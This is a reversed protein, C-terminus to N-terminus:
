VLFYPTVGAARWYERLGLRTTLREFRPDARVAAMPPEFLFYTIKGTHPRLMPGPFNRRFAAPEIGPAMIMELYEFAADLRGTTSAFQAAESAKAVVRHAITDFLRLTDDIQGEARSQLAAAQADWLQYDIPDLGVPSQQSDAIIASAQAAKGSFLMFAILLTWIAYHRPWRESMRRLMAEAEDLRGVSWLRRVHSTAGPSINAGEVLPAGIELAEGVQGTEFLFAARTARALRHRPFRKLAQATRRDYDPYSSYWLGKGLVSVVAGDANAPDIELARAAAAMARDLIADANAQRNINGQRRYAIALMGWAEAREPFRETAERMLGVAAATQEPTSYNLAADASDILATLDAPLKPRRLFYVGSAAAIVIATGGLLTRRGPGSHLANAATPLAVGDAVLRYGIRTVTEVEFAGRGLGGALKRLRSIVRNIADEGVVRGEWCSHALDDKSVVAGGARHMAVLVQMVRPEIVEREGGREVERTSPHVALPGITFDPEHALDIRVSDAM